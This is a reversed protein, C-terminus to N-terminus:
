GVLNAWKVWEATLAMGSKLDFIPRYGLMRQAKAISVRTKRSQFIADSEALLQLPKERVRSAAAPAKAKKTAASGLILSKAAVVMPRPSLDKAKSVIPLTALRKFVIPDRLLSGLQATTGSRKEQEKRLRHVEDLPLSITSQYGLMAEYAGYFERWTAPEPGSMLFREGAGEPSTAACLIGLVLDDVYIGNCTGDGGNVLTVRGAKLMRLPNLTWSPAGPGYVVTPQLVRFDLQHEKAKAFGLQEGELKTYGYV